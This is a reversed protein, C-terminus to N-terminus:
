IKCKNNVKNRTQGMVIMDDEWDIMQEDSPNLGLDGLIDGSKTQIEEDPFDPDPNENDENMAWEGDHENVWKIFANIDADVDPNIGMENSYEIYQGFDGVSKYRLTSYYRDDPFILEEEQKALRIEALGRELFIQRAAERQVATYEGLGDVINTIEKDSMGIMNNMEKTVKTRNAKTDKVFELGKFAEKITPPAVDPEVSVKQTTTPTSTEEEMVVKYEISPQYVFTFTNGIQVPRLRTQLGMKIFDVYSGDENLKKTFLKGENTTILVVPSKKNETLRSISVNLKMAKIHDILLPRLTKKVEAPTEKSISFTKDAGGVAFDVSNGSFNVFRHSSSLSEGATKVFADLPSMFGREKFDDFIKDPTFNYLFHGLYAYLGAETTIDIGMVDIIEDIYAQINADYEGKHTAIFIANVLAEATENDINGPRLTFGNWGGKSPVFLYPIGPYLKEENNIKKVDTVNHGVINSEKMIGIKLSDNNESPVLEELTQFDEEIKFVGGYKDTIVIKKARGALINRRIDMLKQADEQMGAADNAVRLNNIFEINHLYAIVKGNHKVAIPVMATVVDNANDFGFHKAYRDKNNKIEGWTTTENVGGPLYTPVNNDDVVELEFEAGPYIISNDLITEYDDIFEDTDVRFIKGGEVGPVVDAYVRHLYALFNHATFHRAYDAEYPYQTLKPSDQLGKEAAEDYYEEGALLKEETLMSEPIAADYVTDVNELLQAIEEDSLYIDEFKIASVQAAVEQDIQFTPAYFSKIYPFIKEMVKKDVTKSIERMVAYFAGPSNFDYDPNDELILEATKKFLETSAQMVQLKKASSMVAAMDDGEENILNFIEMASSRIGAQQASLDNGLSVVTGKQMLVWEGDQNVYQAPSVVKFKDGNTLPDKIDFAQGLTNFEETYTYGDVANDSPYVYMLNGERTGTYPMENGPITEQTTISGDPNVYAFSTKIEPEPSVEKEQELMADIDENKAQNTVVPAETKPEAPSKKTRKKKPKPAPEPTSPTEPVIEETKQEEKRWRYTMIAYSGTGSYSFVKGKIIYAGEEEDEIQYVTGDLVVSDGIKLNRPLKRDPSNNINFAGDPIEPKKSKNVKFEDLYDWVGKEELYNIVGDEIKSLKKSLKSYGEGMFKKASKFISEKKKTEKQEAVIEKQRKEKKALFERRAKELERTYKTSSVTKLAKQLEGVAVEMEKVDAAFQNAKTKLINDAPNAEAALRTQEEQEKLYDLRDNAMNLSERAYFVKPQQLPDSYRTDSVWQKELRKVLELDKQADQEGAAVRDQLLNILPQMTGIEMNRIALKTLNARRVIEQMNDDNQLAAQHMISVAEKQSNIDKEIFKKTEEVLAQQTNYQEQLKNLSGKQNTLASSVVRQGAGGLFGLIGEYQAEPKMFNMLTRVFLDTNDQEVMIPKTAQYQSETSIISQGIEEAYEGLGQLLLDDATFTGFAKKYKQLPTILDKSDILNRTYNKFNSLGAVGLINTVLFAKNAMYMNRGADAARRTAEADTLKYKTMLEEKTNEFTELAMMKSEGINTWYGAGVANIMNAMPKSVRMIKSYAALKQAYSLVKVAGASPVAFGVANDILSKTASFYSAWDGLDFFQDPNERYIPMSKNTWKKLQKGWNSLINSEVEDVGRLVDLNNKFQAMYGIDEMATGVASVLGGAVANFAQAAASQNSARYAEQNMGTKLYRDKEEDFKFQDFEFPKHINVPSTANPASPGQIPSDKLPNFTLDYKPEKEPLNTLPNLQNNM